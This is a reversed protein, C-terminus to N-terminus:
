YCSFFSFCAFYCTGIYIYVDGDIGDRIGNDLCITKTNFSLVGAPGPSQQNSTTKYVRNISKPIVWRTENGDAFEEVRLGLKARRYIESEKILGIIGCHLSGDLRSSPARM